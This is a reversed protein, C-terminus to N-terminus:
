RSAAAQVAIPRLDDRILLDDTRAEQRLVNVIQRAQGLHREAATVDGGNELVRALVYHSRAAVARLGLADAAAAASELQTRADALNQTLLLAEGLYLSCEAAAGRLRLQEAQEAIARLTALAARARGGKVDVKALNLRTLLEIDRNQTVALARRAQEFSSRAAKFNGTYFFADGQANLALALLRASGLERALRLSEELVQRAQDSRGMLALTGGHGTLIESLWHPDNLERFAKVAEERVDLAAGYRGQYQFVTGM